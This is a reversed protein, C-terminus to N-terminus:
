ESGWSWTKSNGLLYRKELTMIRMKPHYVLITGHLVKGKFLCFVKHNGNPVNVVKDM